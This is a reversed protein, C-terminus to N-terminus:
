RGLHLYIAVISCLLAAWVVWFAAVGLRRRRTHRAERELEEGSPALAERVREINGPDTWDGAIEPDVPGTGNLGWYAERENRYLM